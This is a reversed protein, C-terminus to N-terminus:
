GATSVASRADGGLGDIVRIAMSGLMRQMGPGVHHVAVAQVQNDRLFRAVRAHHAGETGEDHLTGWAVTFEQWGTIQGDIVSAVAVREARGWSQDVQGETTVPVCVRM